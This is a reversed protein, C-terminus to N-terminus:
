HQVQRTRTDQHAYWEAKNTDKRASSKKIIICFVLSRRGTHMYDGVKVSFLTEDHHLVGQREQDTDYLM